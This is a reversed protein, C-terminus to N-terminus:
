EDIGIQEAQKILSDLTAIYEENAEIHGQDKGVQYVLWTLVGTGAAFVVGWIDKKLNFKM